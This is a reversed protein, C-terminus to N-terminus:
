DANEEAVELLEVEFILNVNGPFKGSTTKPNLQAPVYLRRKGGSRMGTVGINLGDAFKKTGIKFSIPHSGDKSSDFLQEGKIGDTDSWMVLHITAIKNPVARIGDGVTLDEYKLGSKTEVIGNALATASLIFLLIGVM